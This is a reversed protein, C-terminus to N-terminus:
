TEDTVRDEPGLFLEARGAGVMRVLDTRIQGERLRARLRALAADWNM